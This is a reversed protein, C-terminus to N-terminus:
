SISFVGELFILFQKELEKENGLRELYPAFRSRPFSIMKSPRATQQEEKVRAERWAAYLAQKKASPPPCKSVIYKVAAKNLQYGEISCMELFAQQSDEDSYEAIMLACALNLKKPENEVIEQLPPILDTLKIAKRLEYETIGFFDAVIERSVFKQRNDVSTLLDSRCGQRKETELLAKYAKGREIITLSQRRMLNTTTAIAIARADDAEVIESPITQWQALRAADTRNRGALIEYLDKDPVPRVIIRDHLGENVISQSLAQLKDQPYPNFGIDATFFPVLKDLPLDCFKSREVPTVPQFICEYASDGLELDSAQQTAAMRNLLVASMNKKPM